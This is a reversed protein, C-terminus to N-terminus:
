GDSQVERMRVREEDRWEDKERRIGIIETEEERRMARLM